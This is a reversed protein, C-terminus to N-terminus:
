GSLDADAVLDDDHGEALQRRFFCDTMPGPHNKDIILIGDALDGTIFFVAHDALGTWTQCLLGKELILRSYTFRDDVLQCIRRLDDQDPTQGSMPTFTQTLANFCGQSSIWSRNSFIVLNEADSLLDRGMLLRSDYPLGFLNALTPVVDLNCGPKEIVAPEIGKHWIYFSNKYLEFNEDVQHGILENIQSISLGYPYHDACLAIVTNEAQGAAELKEILTQLARDLEINCALYAKAPDSYPLNAVLPWNKRAMSNYKNYELHGSVTMYYTVFPLDQLYEGTTAEVMEVDSEPWQKTIKLGNGLGKYVEYGMNPHSLNRKYFTYTHDHYAYTRYGQNLLLNGMAFPLSIKASATMSWVGESPLLSLCSTYEGDSTSVPWIPTYFNNFQYSEQSLRYLTPTLKPDVAMPTFSEAVVLILNKGKFRGTYENQSTPEVAQFYRHMALLDPDTETKLLASFDIDLQNKAYVPAPEGTTETPAATETGGTAATTEVATSAM